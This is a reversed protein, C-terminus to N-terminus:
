LILGSSNTKILLCAKNIGIVSSMFQKFDNYSSSNWQCM